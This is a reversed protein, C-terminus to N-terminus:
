DDDSGGATTVRFVRAGPKMATHQGILAAREEAPLPRLLETAVARWDTIESDRRKRWSVTWGDGRAVSAPGLRTKISAELAEIEGELRRAEDRLALLARVARDLDADAVLETGDDAPHARAISAATERFPGGAALRRRFDAAVAVLDRWIREDHAVVHRQLDTGVLAAVHAVSLGTVGLQWRVQAEVHEPLGDAWLRLNGSWKCEVIEGGSRYDPTAGAWDIEPHVVLEGWREVVRGTAEAWLEAVLPELQSGVRMAISPPTEDTATKSRAVDGESRWPDVGLIAGIDTATILDHRRALWEASGALISVDPAEGGAREDRRPRPVRVELPERAMGPVRSICPERGMKPVRWGLPERM